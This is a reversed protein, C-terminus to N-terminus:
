RVVGVNVNFYAWWVAFVSLALFGAELWIQSTRIVSAVDALVFGRFMLVIVLFLSLSYAPLAWGKQLLLGVGGAFRTLAAGATLVVVWRPINNIYEAYEAKIRGQEVLSAWDEPTSLIFSFVVLGAYALGWIFLCGSITWYVVSGHM